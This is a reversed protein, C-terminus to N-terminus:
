IQYLYILMRLKTNKHYIQKIQKKIMTLIEVMIIPVRTMSQFLQVKKKMKRMLKQIIILNQIIYRSYNERESNMKKIDIDSKKYDKCSNCCGFINMNILTNFFVLLIFILKYILYFM